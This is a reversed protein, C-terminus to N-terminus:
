RGQALPYKKEGAAIAATLRNEDPPVPCSFDGGYACYPNYAQNFDLDYIGSTNEPLDLYRGAEYTDKGTTADKFPIFLYPHAPDEDGEMRYAQLRCTQGDVNFEFYGYRLGERIEGTNTTLRIRGPAPYRNLKLRFRLAPNMPFYDLGRFRTKDKAPIPSGTDSRFARDREQRAQLVSDGANPAASREGTCGGFAVVSVLLALNLVRGHIGSEWVKHMPQIIRIETVIKFACKRRRFDAKKSVFAIRILIAHFL